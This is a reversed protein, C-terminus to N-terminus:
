QKEIQSGDKLKLYHTYLTPPNLCTFITKKIYPNREPTAKVIYDTNEVAVFKTAFTYHLNVHLSVCQNSKYPYPYHSIYKASKSNTVSRIILHSM